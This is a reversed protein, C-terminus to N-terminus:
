SLCSCRYSPWVNERGLHEAAHLDSVVAGQGVQSAAADTLRGEDTLKDEHNIGLYWLYIGVSSPTLSALLVCPVGGPDDVM